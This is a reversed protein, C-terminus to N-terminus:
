RGAVKRLMYRSIGRLWPDRPLPETDDGDTPPLVIDYRRIV